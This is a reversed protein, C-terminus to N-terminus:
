IAFNDVKGNLNRRKLLLIGAFVKTMLYTQANLEEYGIGRGIFYIAVDHHLIIRFTRDFRQRKPNTLVKEKKQKENQHRDETLYSQHM